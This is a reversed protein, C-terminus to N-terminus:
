MEAETICMFRLHAYKHRSMSYCKVGKRDLIEVKIKPYVQLSFYIKGKFNISWTVFGFAVQPFLTM